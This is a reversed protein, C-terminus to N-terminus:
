GGAGHMIIMAVVVFCRRRMMLVGIAVVVLAHESLRCGAIPAM